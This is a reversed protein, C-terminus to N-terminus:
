INKELWEELNSGFRLSRWLQFINEEHTYNLHVERKKSEQPNFGQIITKMTLLGLNTINVDTRSRSIELYQLWGIAAGASMNDAKISEVFQTDLRLALPGSNELWGNKVIWEPNNLYFLYNGM